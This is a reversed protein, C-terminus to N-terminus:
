RNDIRICQREDGITIYVTIEEKLDSFNANVFEEATDQWDIYGKGDTVIKSTYVHSVEPIEIIAPLLMIADWEISHDGWDKALDAAKSLFEHASKIDNAMVSAIASDWEDLAEEADIHSDSYSEECQEWLLRSSERLDELENALKTMKVITDTNNIM